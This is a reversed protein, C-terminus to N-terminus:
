LDCEGDDMLKPNHDVEGGGSGCGGSTCYTCMWTHHMKCITKRTTNSQETLGVRPLKRCSASNLISLTNNLVPVVLVEFQIDHKKTRVWQKLFVARLHLPKTQATGLNHSKLQLPNLRGKPPRWLTVTCDNMRYRVFEQDRGHLGELVVQSEGVTIILAFRRDPFIALYM